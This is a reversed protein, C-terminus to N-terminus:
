SSPAPHDLALSLSGAQLAVRIHFVVDYVEGGAVHQPRESAIRYTGYWRGMGLGGGDTTDRTLSSDTIQRDTHGDGM